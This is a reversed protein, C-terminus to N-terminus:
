WFGGLKIVASYGPAACALRSRFVVVPEDIEWQEAAEPRALWSRCWSCQIAETRNSGGCNKCQM